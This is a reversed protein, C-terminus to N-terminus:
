RAYLSDEIDKILHINGDFAWLLIATKVLSSDVSLAFVIYHVAVLPM